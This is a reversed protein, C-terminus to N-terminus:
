EQGVTSDPSDSSESKSRECVKEVKLKRRSLIWPKPIKTRNGLTGDYELQSVIVLVKEDEYFIWGVENIVTDKKCWDIVRHPEEWGNDSEADLWEILELCYKKM